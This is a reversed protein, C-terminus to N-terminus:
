TTKIFINYKIINIISILYHRPLTNRPQGLTPWGKQNKTPTATAPTAAAATATIAAATATTATTTPAGTAM